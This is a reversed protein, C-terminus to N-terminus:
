ESEEDSEGEVKEGRLMAAADQPTIEGSALRDLIEVREEPDKVPTSEPKIDIPISLRMSEGSLANNLKALRAKVTPYSIGMLREVDKMNGETQLFVLAFLRDEDDLHCFSCGSFEGEVETGCRPCGYRTINLPSACKPCQNLQNKM